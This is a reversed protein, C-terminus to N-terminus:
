KKGITKSDINQLTVSINVFVDIFAKAVICILYVVIGYIIYSIFSIFLATEEHKFWLVLIRIAQIFFIIMLVVGIIKIVKGYKNLIPEAGTNLLSSDDNKARSQFNFWEYTYWFGEPDNAAVPTDAPIDFSAMEEETYPGCVEGDMKVYFINKM